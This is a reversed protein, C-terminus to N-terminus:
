AIKRLSAIYKKLVAAQVNSVDTPKIKQLVSIGNEDVLAGISSNLFSSSTGSIGKFSLHILDNNELAKKLTTYLAFGSANTVFDGVVELIHITKSKM